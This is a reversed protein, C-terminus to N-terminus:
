LDRSVTLPRGDRSAAQVSGLCLVACCELVYAPVLSSGDNGNLWVMHNEIVSPSHQGPGWTILTHTHIYTKSLTSTVVHWGQELVM